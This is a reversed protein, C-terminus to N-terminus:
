NEQAAPRSAALILFGGEAGCRFAGLRQRNQVRKRM